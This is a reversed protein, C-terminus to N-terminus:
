SSPCTSLAALQRDHKTIQDTRNCEPPRQLELVISLQEGSNATNTDRRDFLMFAKNGAVLAVTHQDIESIRHRALIVRLAGDDLAEQVVRRKDKKNWPIRVRLDIGAGRVAKVAQKVAPENASKRHLILCCESTM